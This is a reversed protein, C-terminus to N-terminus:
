LRGHSTLRDKTNESLLWCYPASSLTTEVTSGLYRQELEVSM